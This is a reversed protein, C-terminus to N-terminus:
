TNRKVHKLYEGFDKGVEEHRLGFEVITKLYELKNGTDFYKGNKILYAYIKKHDKLMLKFADNYYFEQGHKLNKQCEDLYSFIDPTIIAGSVTALDSPANNIGPKEIVQNVEILGPEIEKGSAFGYRNYDEPNSTRICALIPANFKKFVSIMQEFQPPTSLIFDDAWTYIFPENGILNKACILPTGNGYPGVQNIFTIKAIKQINQVEEILSKKKDGGLQLNEILAPSAESFHDKIIQKHDNVVIFIEKIGSSALEEVVVQIIPKDVLPLMEKPVVKSAPLLRTGFGGAPIVAKTIKMNTDLM